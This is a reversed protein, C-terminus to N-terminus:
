QLALASFSKIDTTYVRKSLIPIDYLEFTKGLPKSFM